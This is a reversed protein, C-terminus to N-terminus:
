QSRLFLGRRLESFRFYSLSSEPLGMEALIRDLGPVRHAVRDALPSSGSTKEKLDQLAKQKLWFIERERLYVQTIVDDALEPHQTLTKIERLTLGLRQWEQCRTFTM